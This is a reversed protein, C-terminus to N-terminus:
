GYFSNPSLKIKQKKTNYKNIALAPFMKKKKRHISMSLLHCKMKCIDIRRKVVTFTLEFM